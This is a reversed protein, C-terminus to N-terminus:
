WWLNFEVGSGFLCLTGMCQSGLLHSFPRTPLSIVKKAFEFTDWELLVSGPFLHFEGSGCKGVQGVKDMAPQFRGCWALSVCFLGSGRIFLHTKPAVLSLVLSSSEITTGVVM